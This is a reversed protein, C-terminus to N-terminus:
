TNLLISMENKYDSNHRHDSIDNIELFKQQAISTRSELLNLDFADTTEKKDDEIKKIINDYVDRCVTKIPVSVLNIFNRAEIDESIQNTADIYKFRKRSPDTCCLLLKNNGNVDVSKIIHDVCLRAIGKQGLWFHKEIISHNISRIREPDIQKEFLDYPALINQLNNNNGKITTNNTNNTTIIPKSISKELLSTLRNNEKTIFEKEFNLKENQNALYVLKKEYEFVIKQIKDEYESKIEKTLNEIEIYKCTKVHKQMDTKTFTKYDCKLSPCVKNKVDKVDKKDRRDEDCVMMKIHNKLTYKTSFNKNCKECYNEM